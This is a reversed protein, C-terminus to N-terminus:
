RSPHYAAAALVRLRDEHAAYEAVTMAAPLPRSAPTEPAEATLQNTTM